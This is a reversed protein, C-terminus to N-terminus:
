RPGPGDKTGRRSGPGRGGPAKATRGVRREVPEVIYDEIGGTVADVAPGVLDDRVSRLAQVLIDGSAVGTGVLFAAGAAALLGAVREVDTPALMAQVLQLGPLLPLIAPVVWLAAPAKFRRALLRGVVGIIIAAGLTALSPELLGLEAVGIFALWAAGGLAAAQAVFGSPVGLRIAFAGVAVFAALGAVVYGWDTRGVTEITLFVDFRMAVALGLLTGGAVGAALLLAEALRASGSIMSQDILDRFGSGLAYGPLFRLLSGTLVLGGTIPVGLKVFVAVLLASAAAGFVVRFFPPLTSRDLGSLAPQVILAILMTVAADVLNGGFVITSAAASVGPAVFSVLAGFPLPQEELSDLAAEAADLTVTGDRVGRALSAAAALRGFDSTRDRVIHLLTTPSELDSADHSLTITSFTVAAQIGHLGFASAVAVAIAEVEDSQAGSSLMAVATRMAVRM